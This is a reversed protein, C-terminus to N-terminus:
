VGCRGEWGDGDRKGGGVGGGGSVGGKQGLFLLPVFSRVFGLHHRSHLAQLLAVPNERWTISAPPQVHVAELIQGCADSAGLLVGLARPPIDSLLLQEDADTPRDTMGNFIIAPAVATAPLPLFVNRVPIGHPRVPLPALHRSRRRRAVGVARKQRITPRRQRAHGRAHGTRMRQSEIRRARRTQRSRRLRHTRHGGRGLLPLAIMFPRPIIVRKRPRALSLRRARRRRTYPM